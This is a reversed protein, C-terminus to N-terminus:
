VQKNQCPRGTPLPKITPFLSVEGSTSIIQRDELLHAHLMDYPVEQVAVERDIAISAATAASQGLVMFVPEMRISGYAAHTVSACVPVLLNGCEGRKPIIARYSIGFPAPIHVFMGGESTVFGKPSVFLKIAHSDMHYSGLGVPDMAVEKGLATHETIVFDSIMRRAERIYLQFPWNVTDTFEDKALGWPAYYRRVEEPIRPHHQLTWILGRQWQEHRKAIRERTAYDAEPYAWNMGVLDTSIYGNNNTDTKSNPLPDPKLFSGRLSTKFFDSEMGGAEIFRFLLEYQGEDYDAPKDITVRNEPVKTLCLRYNYAQVGQDGDGVKGGWGPYIRPLLGSQSNGKIRYPDIGDPFRGPLPLPRIGNNKENYRSNPERGVVYSVGAAAMLDGEYTTDIFMSGQFVRGSEMEISTIKGGKMKVGSRRNLRENRVVTVNAEITMQDFLREAVSPELVWITQDDPSLPAHQGSMEHKKEWKWAADDQYHKWARHFYERALGGITRPDGVDVWGLGGSMMGGLHKGPEILVVSRGMRGAQVAAIVGGSTGGYVVIDYVDMGKSFNTEGSVLENLNQTSSKFPIAAGLALMGTKLIFNRRNLPDM